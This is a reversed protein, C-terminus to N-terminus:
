GKITPEVVEKYEQVPLYKIDEYIPPDLIETLQLSTINEAANYNYATAMFVGDLGNISFVSLYNFFGYVDGSFVQRPRAYMKMREEGMIKLISEEFYLDNLRRWKETPTTQNSKYITGLYVDSPNDANFVEKNKAIKSSPKEIREFTHAEGIVNDVIANPTFNIEKLYFYGDLVFDSYGSSFVTLSINGDEPTPLPKFTMTNDAGTLGWKSAGFSLYTQQTIWECEIIRNLEDNPPTLSSKGKLYYTNSSTTLKIEVRGFRYPTDAFYKFYFDVVSAAPLTITDSLKLIPVIASITDLYVGSRDPPFGLYNSNLITYEPLTNNSLSVLSTNSIFGKVLGYKYNIRFAGISNKVTKQQNANVHHPYYGDIQSGLNEKFDISNFGNNLPKGDSDYGFFFVNPKDVLKNPKCIIWKGRSSVLIAGFIDLVSRLVEDCNMITDGDDKIFRNVNLYTGNLVDQNFSLGDHIIDIKVLIDQITKTRKLCNSVIELMSQKGIFPLGNSDVYSLNKLFGIGDLCDLSIVWKDAVLSEFIGEPSLWGNFLIEEDRKYVVSFTREEETYLDSFNLNSNAELDIRLGCGRIPELTDETESYELSCTGYIQKSDSTFSEQLIDVRHKVEKIDTFEFWYKLGFFNSSESVTGSSITTGYFFKVNIVNADYSFTVVNNLVTITIDSLISFSLELADVYNKATENPNNGILAERQGTTIEKFRISASFDELDKEFEIGLTQGDLVNGFIIKVEEM